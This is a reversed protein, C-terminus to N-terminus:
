LSIRNFIIGEESLYKDERKQCTFIIIQGKILHVIANLAKKCRNDDYQVFADDLIITNDEDKFILQILAVRLSLYLQDLTGNSLYKGKFLNNNNDRVLMEYNDGLIVEIYKDGTIYRFNKTIKDNLIPIVQSRVEELSENMYKIALEIARLKNEKLKIEERVEELEESIEPIERKGILRNSINNELDKINKECELLENNKIKQEKEVEEENKYRFDINNNIIKRIQHEIDKIDRDKLLVNYTEEMSNIRNQIDKYRNIKNIYDDLYKKIESIEVGKLNIKSLKNDLKDKIDNKEKEKSDIIHKKSNYSAIIITQENKIKEYDYTKNIVDELDKSNSIRIIRDIFKKNNEYINKVKEPKINQLQEKKNQILINNKIDEEKKKDQIKIFKLLETYNDMNFEQLYGDLEKEINIISKKLRATRRDINKDTFLNIFAIINICLLLGGLVKFPLSLVIIMGIGVLLGIIDTIKYFISKKKNGEMLSKITLLESEYLEFAQIISERKTDSIYAYSKTINKELSYIDKELEDIERLKNSLNNQEYKLELLEEKLKVGFQDIFKYNNIKEEIKEKNKVIDDFEEKLNEIENAITIYRKRDEEISEIYEEDIINSGDFLLNKIEQQKNKLNETKLLYEKLEEYEEKLGLQRLYNKYIELKSLTDLIQKKTAKQEYLQQEWNINKEAIKHGEYLETVLENERRRLVDLEGVGRVTKISKKLNELSELAKNVQVEDTGCGLTSTIKDIIEEERDESIVVGLQGVFLTKEFTSRNIGLFYRGPENKDIYEVERGSLSDIIISKDQKKTTSFKRNLLYLKENHEVLLEGGITGGDFPIYLSREKEGNVKKNSFGYLMIKIFNEITTKGKENDGYIINVGETLDLELNKIGAFSDIKIKKIIM